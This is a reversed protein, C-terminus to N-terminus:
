SSGWFVIILLLFHITSVSASSKEIRAYSSYGQSVSLHCSISVVCMTICWLLLSLLFRVLWSRGRGKLVTLHRRVSLESEQILRFTMALQTWPLGKLNSKNTRFATENRKTVVRVQFSVAMRKERRWSAISIKLELWAESLHGKEKGFVTKKNTKRATTKIKIDIAARGAHM